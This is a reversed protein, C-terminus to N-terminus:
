LSRKESPRHPVDEVQWLMEKMQWPIREGFQGPHAESCTPPMWSVGTAPCLALCASLVALLCSM